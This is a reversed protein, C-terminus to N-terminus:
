ADSVFRISMEWYKNEPVELKSKTLIWTNTSDSWERYHIHLHFRMYRLEFATLLRFWETHVDSKKIFNVQGSYLINKLTQSSFVGDNDFSVITELKNEFYKEAITRDVSENQDIIVINSAMPLHSTVSVKVRQDAVQYLPHSASAKIEQFIQGPIIAFPADVEYWARVVEGGLVSYAIFNDVVVEQLGLVNAGYSTFLLVFNNWFNPTGVIELSGDPSIKFSILNYPGPGVNPDFNEAVLPPLQQLYPYDDELDDMDAGPDAGYGQLNMMGLLSMNRNFGRAWNTLTRVLESVDYQKNDPSVTFIADNPDPLQSVFHAVNAEISQGVNRRMVRFLETQTKVPSIPANNLPISLNSVSFMYNLKDDLLNHRLSVSTEDSGTQMFEITTQDTGTKNILVSTM